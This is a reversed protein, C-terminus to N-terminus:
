TSRYRRPCCAVRSASWSHNKEPCIIRPLTAGGRSTALRPSTNPWSTWGDPWAGKSTNRRSLLVRPNMNSYFTKTGGLLYPWFKKLGFIVALAEKESTVYGKEAVQLTRSALQVPHEKGKDDKQALVASLAYKFADAYLVFSNSMDPFALVLSKTVAKKLTM